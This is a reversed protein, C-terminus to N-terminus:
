LEKTEELREGCGCHLHRECLDVRQKIRETELGHRQWGGEIARERYSLMALRTAMDRVKAELSNARMSLQSICVRLKGIESDMAGGLQEVTDPQPTAM